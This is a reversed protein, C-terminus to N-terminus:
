KVLRPDWCRKEEQSADVIASISQCEKDTLSAVLGRAEFNQRLHIENESKILVGWGKKLAWALVTQVRTAGIRKAVLDIIDDGREKETLLKGEALLAYGIIVISHSAFRQQIKLADRWYWPHIEMQIYAGEIGYSSEELEQIHEPTFNSIGINKVLGETRAENLVKWAELRLEKHVPSTLREKAVAPWHILYLDLYHTQLRALSKLLNERPRKLDYPSLKSTIWLDSRRIPRSTTSSSSYINQLIRGIDSENKYIAATDIHRYGLEIANQISKQVSTNHCRFTGLGIMPIQEMTNKIM